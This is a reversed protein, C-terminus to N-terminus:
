GDRLIATLSPVSAHTAERQLTIDSARWQFTMAPGAAIRLKDHCRAARPVRCFLDMLRGFREEEREGGTQARQGPCGRLPRWWVAPLHCCQNAADAM